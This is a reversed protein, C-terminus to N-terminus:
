GSPAVFVKQTVHRGPRFTLSLAGSLTMSYGDDEISRPPRLSVTFTPHGLTGRSTKGSALTQAASLLPGPCRTRPSSFASYGVSVTGGSAGIVLSGSGLQETDTCTGSQTLDSTISGTDSWSVTGIVQIGRRDGARSLGLATLFDRRPRNALGMATLQGTVQQPSPALTITGALGCSDLLVCVRADSTGSANATVQGGLRAITLQETVQRMRATKIGPPFTTSASTKQTKPTGLHLVITSDVTGAFGGTAFAGHGGLSLQQHGRVLTRIPVTVSPSANAVDTDLPGACRSALLSGGAQVLSVTVLGNRTTFTPSVFQQAVDACSGSQSGAASRTVDTLATQQQATAVQYLARGRHVYKLVVIEGGAGIRVVTTGRYACLGHAACGSAADGHFMVVLQGTATARISTQSVPTAGPVSGFAFLLTSTSQARASGALAAILAGVLLAGIARTKM